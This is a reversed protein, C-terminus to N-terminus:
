ERGLFENLLDGDVGSSLSPQDFHKLVGDDYEAELAWPFEVRRSEAKISSSMKKSPYWVRANGKNGHTHHNPPVARIDTLRKETNLNGVIPRLAVDM